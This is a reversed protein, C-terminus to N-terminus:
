PAPARRAPGGRAVGALASLAPTALGSPISPGPRCMIVGRVVRRRLVQAAGSRHIYRVGAGARSSAEYRLPLSIAPLPFFQSLLPPAEATEHRCGEKSRAGHRDADAQEDYGQSHALLKGAPPLRFEQRLPGCGPNTLPQALVSQRRAGRPEPVGPM